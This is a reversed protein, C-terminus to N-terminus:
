FSIELIHYYFPFKIFPNEFKKFKLKYTYLVDLLTYVLLKSIDAKNLSLFIYNM